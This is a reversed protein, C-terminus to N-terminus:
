DGCIEVNGGAADESDLEPAFALMGSNFGAGTTALLASETGAGTGEALGFSFRSDGSANMGERGMSAGFGIM